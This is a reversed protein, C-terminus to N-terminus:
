SSHRRGIYRYGITSRPIAGEVLESVSKPLEILQPARSPLAAVVLSAAKSSVSPSRVGRLAGYVLADFDGGNAGLYLPHFHDSTIELIGAPTFRFFDRPLDHLPTAWPTSLVVVGKPCLQAHISEIALRPDEVHELVELAVVCAFKGTFSQSLEMVSGVVDPHRAPDNDISVVERQDGFSRRVEQELGGAGVVLVPGSVGVLSRSIALFVGFNARSM